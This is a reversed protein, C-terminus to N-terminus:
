LVYYGVIVGVALWVVSATSLILACGAVLMRDDPERGTGM